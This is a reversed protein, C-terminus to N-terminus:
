PWIEVMTWHMIPGSAGPGRGERGERGETRTWILRKPEDANSLDVQEVQDPTIIAVRFNKRALAEDKLHGAQQGLGEGPGVHGDKVRQGPPPNKFSGRMEPSLNEFQNEVELRWSWDVPQSEGDGKRRMFRAVEAKVTAAGSKHELPADEFDDAALFWCRGRIRWQTMAHKFFYVAEILGGGGSESVSDRASASIDVVKNMRADTTFVPCDSDYIAANKRLKNYPNEPLSAWFGRHICYRVRPAGDKTVTALAFEASSPGVHQLHEVFLDKWPAVAPSTM